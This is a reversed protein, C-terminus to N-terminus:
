GATAYVQVGSGDQLIPAAGGADILTVVAALGSALADQAGTAASSCYFNIDASGGAPVELCTVQGGVMTGNNATTVQGWHCNAAGGTNGIIDVDTGSGVLGTLDVLIRTVVLTGNRIFGVAYTEAASVGSGKTMVVASDDMKNLETVTATLDLVELTNAANRIIKM